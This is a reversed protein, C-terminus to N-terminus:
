ILQNVDSFLLLKYDNRFGWYSPYCSITLQPLEWRYGSNGRRKEPLYHLPTLLLFTLILVGATDEDLCPSKILVLCGFSAHRFYCPDPDCIDLWDQTGFQVSSNWSHLPDETASRGSHLLTSLILKTGIAWYSKAVLKLLFFNDCFNEIKVKRERLVATYLCLTFLWVWNLEEKLRERHQNEFLCLARSGVMPMWIVGAGFASLIARLSDPQGEPERWDAKIIPNGCIVYM